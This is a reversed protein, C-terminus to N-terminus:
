FYLFYLILKKKSFIYISFLIIILGILGVQELMLLYANDGSTELIGLLQNGFLFNLSFEQHLFYENFDLITTLFIKKFYSITIKEFNFNETLYLNEFYNIFIFILLTSLILFFILLIIM